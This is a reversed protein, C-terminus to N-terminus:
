SDKNLLCSRAFESASIPVSRQHSEGIKGSPFPTPFCLEDLHKLKNSLANEKVYILKFHESDTLTLHKQDLRRITYAQFSSIDEASVKVLM